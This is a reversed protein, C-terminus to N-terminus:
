RSMKLFVMLSGALALLNLVSQTTVGDLIGGILVLVTGLFYILVFQRSLKTDKKKIDFLQILWSAGIFLLGLETYGVQMCISYWGTLM